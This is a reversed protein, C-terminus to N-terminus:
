VLYAASGELIVKLMSAWISGKGSYWFKKPICDKSQLILIDDLHEVERVLVKLEYTEEDVVRPTAGVPLEGNCVSVSQCVAEKIYFKGYDSGTEMFSM